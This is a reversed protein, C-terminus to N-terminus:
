RLMPRSRWRRRPRIPACGCISASCMAMAPASSCFVPCVRRSRSSSRRRSSTKPSRRAGRDYFVILDIDSSYNLEGAGMKGMAFIILGSGIDPKAPDRPKFRGRDAEQSLLYRVASQVSSVALDTLAKTVQMVPWVGGIDCLAILLAAEAKMRRLHVMVDSDNDSAAVTASTRAILESLYSEPECALLRASRAPDIRMLDFLYPSAEVIGEFIANAQPWRDFIARLADAQASELDALWGSLREQAEAPNTLQPGTVFRAALTSRDADGNAPLTM